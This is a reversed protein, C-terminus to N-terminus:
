RSAGQQMQNLERRDGSEVSDRKILVLNPLKASQYSNIEMGACIEFLKPTTWNMM